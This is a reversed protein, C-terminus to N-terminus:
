GAIYVVGENAAKGVAEGLHREREIERKREREGVTRRVGVHNGSLEMVM